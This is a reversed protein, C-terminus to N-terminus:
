QNACSASIKLPGPGEYFVRWNRWKKLPPTNNDPEHTQILAHLGTGREIDTATVEPFSCKGLTKSEGGM